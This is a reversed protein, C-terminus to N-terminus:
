RNENRLLPRLVPYLVAALVTGFIGQVLNFPIDASAAAIGAQISSVSFGSAAPGLLIMSFVFYGIIMVAEAQIAAGILAPLDSSPRLPAAGRLGSDHSAAHELDTDDAATGRSSLHQKQFNRLTRFAAGMIWASLAKIVLTAPAFILYGGLLDAFMSGLGAALAGALPGLLLGCLLVLGDGPHIFGMSPTPIRIVLTAAATLAALLASFILRRTSLNRM